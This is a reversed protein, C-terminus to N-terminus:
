HLANLQDVLAAAFRHRNLFPDPANAPLQADEKDFVDYLTKFAPGAYGGDTIALFFAAAIANTSDKASLDKNLWVRMQRAGKADQSIGLYHYQPDYSPMESAKKVSVIIPITKDDPKLAARLAEFLRRVDGTTITVGEIQVGDSAAFARPFLSLTILFTTALAGATRAVRKM